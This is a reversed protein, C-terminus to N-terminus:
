VVVSHVLADVRQFQSAAEVVGLEVQVPRIGGFGHDGDAEESVCVSGEALEGL